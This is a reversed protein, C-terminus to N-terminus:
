APTSARRSVKALVRCSLAHDAPSRTPPPVSFTDFFEVDFTFCAFASRSSSVTRLSMQSASLGATRRPRCVQTATADIAIEEGARALCHIAKGFVARFLAFSSRCWPGCSM